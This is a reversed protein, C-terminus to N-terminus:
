LAVRSSPVAQIGGNEDIIALFLSMTRPLLRCELVENEM